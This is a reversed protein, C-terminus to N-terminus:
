DAKRKSGEVLPSSSKGQAPEKCAGDIVMLLLIIQWAAFVLNMAYFFNANASGLLIWEEWVAPSRIALFLFSTVLFWWWQLTGLIKPFLPLLGLYLAIDPLTPYPKLLSKIICQVFIVFLPKDPFRITVPILFLGATAHFVFTFFDRFGSFIETFFYWFLGINPTLDDVKLMVWYTEVMWHKASCRTEYPGMKGTECEFSGRIWPIWSQCAHEPYIGLSVESLALISIAWILVFALFATVAKLGSYRSIRENNSNSGDKKGGRYILVCLPVLLFIPHLGWYAAFCFGFASLGLKSNIAGYISLVIFANEFVGLSGGVCSLITLPNLLYFSAIEGADQGIALTHGIEGLLVATILDALILPFSILAPFSALRGLTSLVLPPSHFASGTYPSLGKETLAVGEKLRTLSSFPSVIEARDSVLSGFGLFLLAFRIATGCLVGRNSWARGGTSM